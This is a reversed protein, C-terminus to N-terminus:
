TAVASVDAAGFLVGFRECYIEITNYLTLDVDAGIEYNQDGINGQLPGLNILDGNDARLTVKLDPGNNTSFNEFRLFRANGDTIVLAQGEVTYGPEGAFDGSFETIIEGAMETDEVSQNAETPNAEAEEMAADFEEQSFPNAQSVENDIFASQIGFFGFALWAVLAIVGLGAVAGIAKKQSSNM